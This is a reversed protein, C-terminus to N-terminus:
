TGFWEERPWTAALAAWILAVGLAGALVNGYMFYLVVAFLAPAELLAWVIVVNTQIDGTRSEEPRAAEREILPAVRARWFLIATLIAATALAVVLSAMLDPDPAARAPGGQQHLFWSVFAFLTVGLGLSAGIIRFALLAQAASPDSGHPDSHVM